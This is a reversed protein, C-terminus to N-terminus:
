IQSSNTMSPVQLVTGSFHSLTHSRELFNLNQEGNGNHKRHRSCRNFAGKTIHLLDFRSRLRSRLPSSGADINFSIIMAM